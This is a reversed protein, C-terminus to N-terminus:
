VNLQDIDALVVTVAPADPVLGHVWAHFIFTDNPCPSFYLRLAPVTATPM